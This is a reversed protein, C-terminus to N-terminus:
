NEARNRWPVPDGSCFIWAGLSYACLNHVLVFALNAKSPWIQCTDSDYEGHRVNTLKQVVAAFHVYLLQYTVACGMNANRCCMLVRSM